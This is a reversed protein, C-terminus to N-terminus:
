KNNIEIIIKLYANNILIVVTGGPAVEFETNMYLYMIASYNCM